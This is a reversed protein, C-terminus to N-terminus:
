PTSDKSLALLDAAIKQPQLPPRITGAIRGQPDILVLNASHDMSYDDPNQAFHPGPSKMFVLGFARAFNELTADDATAAITDPHFAHVYQGLRDPTDRRPDVSVFLLRPRTSDPLAAWQKQAQALDQLTTPCVDPCSTYGLFLLTWHGHLEGSTLQTGDSQRLAFPAAERPQPYLLATQLEPRAPAKGGFTQLAVFLGLGAAAVAVAILIATFKRDFM